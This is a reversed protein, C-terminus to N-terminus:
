TWRNEVDDILGLRARRLIEELPIGSAQSLAVTMSAATRSMMRVMAQISEEDTAALANVRDWWDQDNWGPEDEHCEFEILEMTEDVCTFLEARRADDM